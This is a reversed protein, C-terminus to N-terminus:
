TEIRPSSWGSHQERFPAGALKRLFIARRHGTGKEENTLEKFQVFWRSWEDSRFFILVSVSSGGVLLVGAHWSNGPGTLSCSSSCFNAPSHSDSPSANMAGPCGGVFSLPTSLERKIPPNQNTACILLM